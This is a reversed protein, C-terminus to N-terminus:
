PVVDHRIMRLKRRVRSRPFIQVTAAGDTSKWIQPVGDDPVYITPTSRATPFGGESAVAARRTLPKGFDESSFLGNFSSLFPNTGGALAYVIRPDSPAQCIDNVLRSAGNPGVLGNQGPRSSGARTVNRV